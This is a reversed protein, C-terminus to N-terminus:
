KQRLLPPVYCFRVTAYCLPRLYPLSPWFIVGSPGPVCLGIRDSNVGQMCKPCGVTADYPPGGKRPLFFTRYMPLQDKEVHHIARFVKRYLLPAKECSLLSSLISERKERERPPFLFLTKHPSPSCEPANIFIRWQMWFWLHFVLCPHSPLSSRLLLSALGKSM